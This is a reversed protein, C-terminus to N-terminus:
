SCKLQKELEEIRKSMECAERIKAEKELASTLDYYQPTNIKGEKFALKIAELRQEISGEFGPLRTPNDSVKDSRNLQWCCIIKFINANAKPNVANIRLENYLWAEYAARGRAFAYSFDPQVRRWEYLSDTHVGWKTAIQEVIMGQERMKIFQECYEPKYKTPQGRGRTTENAM